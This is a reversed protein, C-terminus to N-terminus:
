KGLSGHEHGAVGKCSVSERYYGKVDYGDPIGVMGSAMGRELCLKGEM